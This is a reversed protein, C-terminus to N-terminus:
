TEHGGSRKNRNIVRVVTFKETPKMPKMRNWASDAIPVVKETSMPTTRTRKIPIAPKTTV